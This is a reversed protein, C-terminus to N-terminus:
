IKEYLSVENKLFINTPYWLYLLVVSAVLLGIARAVFPLYLPWDGSTFHSHSSLLVFILPIISVWMAAQTRSLGRLAGAVSHRIADLFLNISQLMFIMFLYSEMRATNIISESLFPASLFRFLLVYIVAIMSAFMLICIINNNGSQRTIDMKGIGVHQSVIIASAHAGCYIIATAAFIYQNVIQHAALMETGAWGVIMTLSVLVIQEIGLDISIPVGIKLISVIHSRLSKSIEFLCFKSLSKENKLYIIYIIASIWSSVTFALGFGFSKMVFFSGLGFIFVYSLIINLLSNIVTILLIIKSKGCALLIQTSSTMILTAPIGLIFGKFYENSLMVCRSDQGLLLLYMPALLVVVVGIVSLTVGIILSDRYIKGVDSYKGDGISQSAIVGVSFLVSNFLTLVIAQVSLMLASAALYTEGLRSIMMIGVVMSVLSVLTTLSFPIALPLFEKLSQKFNVEIEEHSRLIAIIDLGM